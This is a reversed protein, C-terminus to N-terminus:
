LECQKSLTIVGHYMACLHSTIGISGPMDVWVLAEVWGIAHWQQDLAEILGQLTSILNLKSLAIQLM